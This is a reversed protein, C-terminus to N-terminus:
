NAVSCSDAGIGHNQGVDGFSSGSHPHRRSYDEFAFGSSGQAVLATESFPSSDDRADRQRSVEICNNTDSKLIIPEVECIAGCFDTGNENLQRGVMRWLRILHPTTKKVINTQM